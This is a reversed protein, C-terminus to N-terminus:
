RKRRVAKGIQSTRYSKFAVFQLQPPVQSRDAYGRPKNDLVNKIYEWKSPLGKFDVWEGDEVDYYNYIVGTSFVITLVKRSKDYAAAVTRPRDPNSTSTPTEIDPGSFDAMGYLDADEPEILDGSDGYYQRLDYRYDVLNSPMGPQTTGFVEDAERLYQRDKIIDAEVSRSVLKNKSIQEARAQDSAGLKSGRSLEAAMIKRYQEALSESM